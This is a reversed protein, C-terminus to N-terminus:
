ESLEESLLRQLLSYDLPKTIPFTIYSIDESPIIDIYDLVTKGPKAIVVCDDATPLIIATTANKRNVGIVNVQIKRKSTNIIEPHHFIDDEGKVLSVSLYPYCEKIIQKALKAEASHANNNNGRSSSGIVKRPTKMKMAVEDKFQERISKALKKDKEADVIAKISFTGGDSEYVLGTGSEVLFIHGDDPIRVRSSLKLTDNIEAPVWIRGSRDYCEVNGEVGHIVYFGQANLSFTIILFSTILLIHKM